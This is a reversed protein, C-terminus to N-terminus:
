FRNYCYLMEEDVPFINMISEELCLKEGNRIIFDPHKKLRHYYIAWANADEKVVVFTLEERKSFVKHYKTSVVRMIEGKRLTDFENKKM